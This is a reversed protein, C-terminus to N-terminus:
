VPKQAPSPATESLEDVDRVSVVAELVARAGLAVLQSRTAALTAGTTRVDDVLVVLRGKVARRAWPARWRSRAVFRSARGLRQERTRADVQSGAVRQALPQVCRARLERAVGAAILAAHDVGREIRRVAPMPVPVVVVDEGALWPCSAAVQRGLLHGLHEAMEPWPRHKAAVVAERLVARHSGLRVVRRGPACAGVRCRSRLRGAGCRSCWVGPPDPAFGGQQLVDAPAPPGRGLLDEAALSLVRVVNCVAGRWTM